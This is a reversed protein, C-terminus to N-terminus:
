ERLEHVENAEPAEGVEVVNVPIEVTEPSEKPEEEREEEVQRNDSPVDPTSEPLSPEELGEAPTREGESVGDVHMPPRRGDKMRPLSTARKLKAIAFARQEAATTQEM